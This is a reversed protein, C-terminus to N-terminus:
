VIKGQVAAHQSKREPLEADAGHERGQRSEGKDGKQDARFSGQLSVTLNNLLLFPQVQLKVNVGGFLVLKLFVAYTQVHKDEGPATSLCGASICSHQNTILPLKEFTFM